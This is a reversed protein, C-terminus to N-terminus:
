LNHKLLVNMIFHYQKGKCQPFQHTIARTFYDIMVVSQIAAITTNCPNEENSNDNIGIGTINVTWPVTCNLLQEKRPGSWYEKIHNKICEKKYLFSISKTM